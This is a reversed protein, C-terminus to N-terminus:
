NIFISQLGFVLPPRFVIVLASIEHTATAFAVQRVGGEIGMYFSLMFSHGWCASVGGLKLCSSSSAARPLDQCHSLLAFVLFM